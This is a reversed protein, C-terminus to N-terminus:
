LLVTKSAEGAIEQVYRPVLYGSVSSRMEEILKRGEDISVEFHHAGKARDLQHLYYPTVGQAVLKESLAVLTDVSDNVGKLLVSQNLLLAGSISLKWLAEKTVEDLENPHNCHLVIIIKKSCQQIAACLEATIRSPLVAPMRTHIRIREISDIQNFTEFLTSLEIDGMMLPDGGSLIIEDISEDAAIKEVVEMKQTTSLVPYDTNRRFCFRCNVSCAPSSLLLARSAYKKLVGYDVASAIDGVPDDTFGEQLELERDSFAVQALIPDNPDSPNIKDAFIKPVFIPFEPTTSAIESEKLKLYHALAKVTTLADSLEDRWSFSPGNPSNTNSQDDM